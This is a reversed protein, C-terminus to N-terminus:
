FFFLILDNQHLTFGKDIQQLKKMSCGVGTKNEM